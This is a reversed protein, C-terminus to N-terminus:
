IDSQDYLKTFTQLCCPLIEYNIINPSWIWCLCVSPPSWFHVTDKFPCLCGYCRHLGSTSQTTLGTYADMFVWAPSWFCITNNLWCLCRDGILDVWQENNHQKDSRSVPCQGYHRYPCDEEPPSTSRIIWKCWRYMPKYNHYLTHQTYIMKHAKTM